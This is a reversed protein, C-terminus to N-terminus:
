WNDSNEYGLAILQKGLRQKFAIKHEEKFAAKWSDVKGNRFTTHYNQFDGQGFPNNEDGYLHAAIEEVTQSSLSIGLHAALDELVRRQRELSGGGQPGVLDEYRCVFIAPDHALSVAQEAVLQISLQLPINPPSLEYAQHIVLLLQEDFSLKNFAERKEPCYTFEPWIGKRIQFVISVCVDRLDRVGLIQRIPSHAYHARLEPSLCCHTYPFRKQRYTQELSLPDLHWLPTFGTMFYLTKM